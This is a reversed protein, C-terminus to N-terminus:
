RRRGDPDTLDVKVATVRFRDALLELEDSGHLAGAVVTAGEEALSRTIALGIGKSAGAVVVVKGSLNLDM